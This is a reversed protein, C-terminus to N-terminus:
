YRTFEHGGNDRLRTMIAAQEEDIATCLVEMTDRQMSLTYLVAAVPYLGVRWAQSGRQYLQVLLM